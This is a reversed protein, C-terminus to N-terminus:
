NSPRAPLSPTACGAPNYAASWVQEAGLDCQAESTKRGYQFPGEFLPCECIVKGTPKTSPSEYCPATMCGAYLGRDCDTCDLQFKGGAGDRVKRFSFTSVLDAWPILSQAEIYDCVPAITEGTPACGSGDTGCAAVTEIYVCTNLISNIDVYMPHETSAEFKECECSAIGKASDVKCPAPDAGAYYCLAYTGSTCSIMNSSQLMIDAKAPGHETTWFVNEVFPQKACRLEAGAASALLVVSAFALVISRLRNQTM